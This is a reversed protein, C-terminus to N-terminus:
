KAVESVRKDSVPVNVQKGSLSDDFWAYALLLAILIVMALLLTASLEFDERLKM